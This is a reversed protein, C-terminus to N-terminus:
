PNVWMAAKARGVTLFEYFIARLLSTKRWNMNNKLMLFFKCLEYDIVVKTRCQNTTSLPTNVLAPSLLYKAAMYKLDLM